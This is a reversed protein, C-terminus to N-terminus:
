DKKGNLAKIGIKERVEIMTSEAIDLVKKEGIQLIEEVQKPNKLSSFYKERYPSIEDNVITFLEKKLDGWGM